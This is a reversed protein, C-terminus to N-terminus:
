RFKKLMKSLSANAEHLTEPVFSAEWAFLVFCFLFHFCVFLCVFWFGFVLFWFVGWFVFIELRPELSTDLIKSLQPLIFLSLCCLWDWIV